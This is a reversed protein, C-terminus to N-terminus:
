RQIEERMKDIKQLVNNLLNQDRKGFWKDKFKKVTERYQEESYDGSNWWELDHLLGIIEKMMGNLDDDEMKGCYKDEITSYM